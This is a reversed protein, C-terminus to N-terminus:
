AWVIKDIFLILDYNASKVDSLEHMM